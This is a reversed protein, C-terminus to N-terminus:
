SLHGLVHGGELVAELGVRRVADGEARVEVLCKQGENKCYYEFKTPSTRPQIPASRQLYITM